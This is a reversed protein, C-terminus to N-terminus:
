RCSSSLGHVQERCACRTRAEQNADFTFVVPLVMTWDAGANDQKVLGTAM